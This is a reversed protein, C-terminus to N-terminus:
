KDLDLGCESCVTIDRRGREVPYGCAPCLGARTRLRVILCTCISRVCYYSLAAAVGALMSNIILPLILIQCPLVPILVPHPGGYELPDMDSDTQKIRLTSVAKPASLPLSAIPTHDVSLAGVLMRLPLGLHVERNPVSSRALKSRLVDRTDSAMTSLISTSAMTIVPTSHAFTSPHQAPISNQYYYAIDHVVYPFHFVDFGLGRTYSGRLGFSGNRYEIYKTNAYLPRIVCAMAVVISIIMGIAFWTM